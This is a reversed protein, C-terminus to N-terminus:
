YRSMSSTQGRTPQNPNTTTQPYTPQTTTSGTQPYTPQTTTTGTQGYAPQQGYGPQSQSYGGQQGQQGYGGQQGQQGYGGMGGQQGQQGYGGMGGQQGYGGAAGGMGGQQGEGPTNGYGSYGGNFGQNYQYYNFGGMGPYSNAYNWLYNFGGFYYVPMFSMWNYYGVAGYRARRRYYYGCFSETSSTDDLEDITKDPVKSTDFVSVVRDAAISKDDTLRIEAKGSDEKGDTGVPVRILTVAPLTKGKAIADQESVAPAKGKNGGTKAGCSAAMTASLLIGTLRM